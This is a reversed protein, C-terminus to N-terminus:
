KWRAEANHVLDVSDTLAHLSRTVMQLITSSCGPRCAQTIRALAEYLQGIEQLYDFSELRLTTPRADATPGSFQIPGPNEYLDASACQQRIKCLERYSTSSLDVDSSPVHLARESAVTSDPLTQMLATIPVGCAKWQSVDEKLNSITAMYGSLENSILAAAMHGVNYAYTVDFNSPAAGRAQYGIFSCFVSWSGKYTGRKKRLDLEHEVYYAILRETEAQSLAVQDHSNRSLLIQLQMFAPMSDLMSRSWLTLHDRVAAVAEAPHHAPLSLGAAFLADLESILMGVEPISELLGEPILVIGYNMGKNAREEVMDAISRVIDSLKTNHAKVEEALVVYNPKTNLAVELAVHSPEQGILRQFYYM